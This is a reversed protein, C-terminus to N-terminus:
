LTSPISESPCLYIVANVLSSKGSGSVGTVCTFTGLPIKVDVQQLNNEAAGLVELFKGNGTRRQKPIEIRKKGSLYQGTLSERCDMIEQPTGAAVVQGGHIGAGPGIDVIYDAAKMTDEDHEVVILTNGLDRLRQLTAILKDNDRQHLGISPEDLIYLVGM